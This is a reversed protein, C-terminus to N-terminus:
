NIKVIALSNNIGIRKWNGGHIILVNEGVKVLGQKKLENLIPLPSRFAGTPFKVFFSTVGYLLASFEATKKNNTIAIVPINPRLSSLARVSYGTSTFVLAKTINFDKHNEIIEMGAESILEVFSNPKPALRLSPCEKENFDLIRSMTEITKIPYKGAATEESLMVADTGNFVANAVDTAEARSPSPNDIMSMLMQTAVIVPKRKERCKSIIFKQWYAIQEIPIEVGLDGRAIMIADASEIIEEINDLAEKNEIKAVIQATIKRKKMEKRLFEVDEKTRCFSLAIFDIKVRAAMDLKKLDDNILSPLGTKKGPFNVGKRNKIIGDGLARAYLFGNKKEIVEFEFFGNDISFLDKPKLMKLINSHPIVIKIEPSSFSKGFILSENKKFIVAEKNKTFIRVEPGQLDIMIGVPIELSDSIEQVIKIKENHWEVTSHKMNFRFVNVGAKILATIDKPSESVPGITAIIKTKKM